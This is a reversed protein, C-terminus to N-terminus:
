EDEGNRKEIKSPDFGETVIDYKPPKIETNPKDAAPKNDGGQSTTDQNKDDQMTIGGKM